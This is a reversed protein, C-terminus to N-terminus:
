WKFALGAVATTGKGACALGAEVGVCVGKQPFKVGAFVDVVTSPTVQGLAGAGVEPALGWTTNSKGGVDISLDDENLAGYLYPKINTIVAGNPLAPFPPITLGFNPFLSAITSVPAGVMIRQKFAAPGSFAFGQATGNINNWGFMAETAVFMQSSPVNWAYGLLGGVSAENTTLSNPNVGAAIPGTASPSVSGMGGITYIGFYFGNTAPYGAFLNVPVAKAPMDAAMAPVGSILFLFALIRKM